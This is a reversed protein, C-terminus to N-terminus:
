RQEGETPASSARARLWDVVAQGVALAPIGNTKLAPTIVDAWTNVQFADAAERLAEARAREERDAVIRAVADDWIQEARSACTVCEGYEPPHNDCGLALALAEREEESLGGADVTSPEPADSRPAPTEDFSNM